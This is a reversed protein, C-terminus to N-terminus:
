RGRAEWGFPWRFALLRATAGTRFTTEAGPTSHCRPVAAPFHHWLDPGRHLLEPSRPCRMPAATIRCTGDSQRHATRCAGGGRAASRISRRKHASGGQLKVASPAQKIGSAWPRHLWGVHDYLFGHRQNGGDPTRHAAASGHTSQLLIGARAAGIREAQDRLAAAPTTLDSVASRTGWAADDPLRLAGPHPRARRWRIAEHQRALPATGTDRLREAPAWDTSTCPFRSSLALRATLGATHGINDARRLDDEHHRNRRKSFCVRRWWRRRDKELDSVGPSAGRFCGPGRRASMAGLGAMIRTSVEGASGTKCASRGNVDEGASGTM